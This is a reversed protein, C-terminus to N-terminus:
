KKELYLRVQHEKGGESGLKLAQEKLKEAEKNGDKSYYDHLLLLAPLYNLNMKSELSGDTIKESDIYTKVMKESWNKKLVSINDFATESYKFALGTLYLNASMPKLLEPAITNAFYVSRTKSESALEKLFGAKDTKIDASVSLGLEKLEKDRYEKNELLDLYLVKVDTRENKVLQQIWVPYTDNEGHTILIGSQEVSNLLNKNFELLASSYTGASSLAKCFEKKKADNGTIEYYSTYATLVETSKSNLEYAKELHSILETNHNGNLYTIYHYEYTDPVYKEMNKVIEDLNKQETTTIDNSTKSYYSYREARYYNGWSVSNTPDFLVQQSLKTSETEFYGNSFTAQNSPNVLVKNQETSQINTNPVANRENLENSQGNVVQSFSLITAFWFILTNLFKIMRDIKLRYVFNMSQNLRIKNRKPNNPM